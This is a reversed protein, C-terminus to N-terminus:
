VALSLKKRCPLSSILSSPSVSETLFWCGDEGKNWVSSCEAHGAIVPSECYWNGCSDKMWSM